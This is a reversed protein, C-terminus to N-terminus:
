LLLPVRDALRAESTPVSGGGFLRICPMLHACRVSMVGASACPLLQGNHRCVSLKGGAVVHAVTRAEDRSETLVCGRQCTVVPELIDVFRRIPAARTSLVVIGPFDIDVAGGIRGHNGGHLERMVDDGVLCPAVARDAVHAIPLEPTTQGLPRVSSGVLPMMELYGRRGSGRGEGNLRAVGVPRVRLEDPTMLPVGLPPAGGGEGNLALFM